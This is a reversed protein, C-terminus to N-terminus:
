RPSHYGKEGARIPLLLLNSLPPLPCTAFPTFACPPNYAKNFDLWVTDGEVPAYLYRGAPYTETGSTTDKFIIFLPSGEEASETFAELSLAEGGLSFEVIGPSVMTAPTEIVTALSVERPEEFRRLHAQLEYAADIPYFELGGFERRVRSEPDKLRVAHRGGRAIIQFNLRDLWVVEASGSSDDALAKGTTPEGDILLEVGPEARLRVEAGDYVLTGAVPPAPEPFVLECSPDSGFRSEGTELWFLGVLTLWGTDSLLREERDRRWSEIQQRYEASPARSPIETVAAPAEAGRVDPAPEPTSCGSLLCVAVISAM